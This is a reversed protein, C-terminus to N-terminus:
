YIGRVKCIKYYLSPLYLRIKRLTYSILYRQPMNRKVFLLYDHDSHTPYYVYRKREAYKMGMLLQTEEKESIHDYECYGCAQPSVLAPFGNRIATMSYDEDASGHIYGEHFIGQVDVVEKAVLLINAQTNGVKQPSGTPLALRWGKTQPDLTKGGYTIHEADYRSCTIGSYIGSRGSTNLAYDHCAMLQDFVNDMVITDDNLLLYFDNQEHQKTAESWALRMGGAWYCHGNGQVIHLDENQCKERVAESTGDTCADDCLYISLVIRNDTHLANYVNRAEFLEDLCKVTKVKRNFCTLITAIRIM